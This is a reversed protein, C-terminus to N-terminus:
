TYTSVILHITRKLENQTYNWANNKDDPVNIIVLIYKIGM